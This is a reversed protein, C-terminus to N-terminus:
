FASYWALWTPWRGLYFSLVNLSICLRDSTKCSGPITFTTLRTLDGIIIYRFCEDCHQCIRPQCYKIKWYVLNATAQLYSRWKSRDTAWEIKVISLEKMSRKCVDRYRFQPSGLNRKRSRHQGYLFDKPNRIDNMRMVHGLRRRRRQRIMTFMTSLGCRSLVVTNPTRNMWSIGLLKQLSRM